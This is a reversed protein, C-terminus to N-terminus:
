SEAKTVVKGVTFLSLKENAYMGPFFGQFEKTVIEKVICELKMCM